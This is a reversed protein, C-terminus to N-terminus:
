SKEGKNLLISADQSFRKAPIFIQGQKTLLIVGTPVYKLITGEYPDFRIAQGIEYQRQLNYCAILNEIHERSGLAFALMLSGSFAGVVIIILSSIISTRFGLQMLALDFFIILVLWKAALSLHPGQRLNKQKFLNYLLNEVHLSILWGFLIIITAAFLQPVYNFLRDIELDIKHFGTFHLALMFFFAFSIWFMIRSISSIVHKSIFTARESPHSLLGKAMSNTKLLIRYIIKKTVISVLFGMFLIVAFSLITPIADAVMSHVSTFSHNFKGLWQEIENM